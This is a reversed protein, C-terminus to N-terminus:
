VKGANNVLGDIGNFEHCYSEIDNLSSPKTLDASLIHLNNSNSQSKLEALLSSNRAVALVQHGANLLRLTTEFGIGRSAGTLIYTSM